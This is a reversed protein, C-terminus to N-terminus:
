FLAKGRLKQNNRPRGRRTARAQSFHDAKNAPVMVNIQFVSMGTAAASQEGDLFCDIGEATLYNKIIEAKNADTLLYVNELDNPKM